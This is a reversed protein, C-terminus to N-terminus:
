IVAVVQGSEVTDGQAVNVSAVTGDAPAKIPQEMKMAEIIILDDGKKVAQGAAVNIRLVTGPMPATVETGKAAAAPAAAVPAATVSPAAGAVGPLVDVNYAKGNVVVTYSAPANNMKSEKNTKEEKKQDDVFRCGMPRAGKLFNGM